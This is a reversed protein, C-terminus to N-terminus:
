FLKDFKLKADIYASYLESLEKLFSGDSYYDQFISIIELRECLFQFNDGKNSVLVVQGKLTNLDEPDVPTEVIDLTLLGESEAAVVDDFFLPLIGSEYKFFLETDKVSFTTDKTKSLVLKLFDFSDLYDDEWRLDFSNIFSSLDRKRLIYDSYTEWSSDSFYDEGLCNLIIVICKPSFYQMPIDSLFKRLYNEPIKSLFESFESDLYFGKKYGFLSHRNKEAILPKQEGGDLTLQKLIKIALDISDPDKEKLFFDFNESKQITTIVSLVKVPSGFSKFRQHLDLECLSGDVANNLTSLYQSELLFNIEKLHSLDVENLKLGFIKAKIAAKIETVAVSDNILSEPSIVERDDQYFPNNYVLGIDLFLLEFVDRNLSKKSFEQQLGKIFLYLLDGQGFYFKNELFSYCTRYFKRPTGDVHGELMEETLIVLDKKLAKEMLQLLRDKTENLQKVM